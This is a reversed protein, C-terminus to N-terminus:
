RFIKKITLYPYQLLSYIKNIRKLKNAYPTMLLNYKAYNKGSAVWVKSSTQIIDRICDIRVRNLINITSRSPRVRKAPVVKQQSIVKFLRYSLQQRKAKCVGQQSKIVLEIPIKKNFFDAGSQLLISIEPKRSIAINHGRWDERYGPLWADMFVVDACEAFIDDCFDCANPTFYRNSWVERMGQTWFVKGDRTSGDENGCIFSLGYDSASRSMDKVRFQVNSLGSPNGGALACIYEVFFKNKTQGCVLGVIYKIRVRLKRSHSQALRIAKCVCPLGVIAYHGDNETVFSLVDQTTVPYYCSRSCGRIEETSSCVKYKFLKHPDDNPAVCLVYDVAKESFLKELLCTVMGGSASNVRTKPEAAFGVYTDLYFGTEVTHKIDPTGAFLTRSIEDENPNGDIFPCVKVCLGCESCEKILKPRYEGYENFSMQLADVPCIGACVGCGCCYDHKLISNAIQEWKAMSKM